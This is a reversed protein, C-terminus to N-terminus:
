HTWKCTDYGTLYTIDLIIYSLRNQRLFNLREAGCITLTGQYYSYSCSVWGRPNEWVCGVVTPFSLPAGHQIFTHSQEGGCQSNWSSPAESDNPEPDVIGLITSPGSFSGPAEQQTPSPLFGPFFSLSLVSGLIIEPGVPGSIAVVWPSGPVSLFLSSHVTEDM